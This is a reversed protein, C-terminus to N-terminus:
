NKSHKDAVSASAWAEPKIKVPFGTSKAYGTLSEVFRWTRGRPNEGIDILIEINADPVKSDVYLAVDVANQVEKTMRHFLTPMNKVPVSGKKFFYRGGPMGDTGHICIATAFVFREGKPSSDSGIFIKAGSKVHTSIKELASELTVAEGSGTAWICKDDLLSQM